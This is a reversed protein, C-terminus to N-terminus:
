KLIKFNGTKIMDEYEQKSMNIVKSEGNNYIITLTQHLDNYILRKIDETIMLIIHLKFIVFDNLVFFTFM